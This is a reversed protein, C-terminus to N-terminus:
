EENYDREDDMQDSLQEDADQNEGKEFNPCIWHSELKEGETCDKLEYDEPDWRTSPYYKVVAHCCDWCDTAKDSCEPCLADYDNVTPKKCVECLKNM